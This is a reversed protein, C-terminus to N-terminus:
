QSTVLIGDFGASKVRELMQQAEPKGPYPGCRLRIKVGNPTQLNETYCQVGKESLKAKLQKVKAADSFVGIQVLVTGKKAVPKSEPKKSETNKPSETNKSELAKDASKVEQSKSETLKPEAVKTDAAKLKPEESKKTVDHEVKPAGVVTTEAVKQIPKAQPEPKANDSAVSDLKPEEIKPVEAVIKQEQPKQEEPKVLPAALQIPPKATDAPAAVPIIKSNFDGDQSPISIAIEPQPTKQGGRDDLVLPLVTIMLLVLAVAGVLRRRARKKFQNEKDTLQDAAM